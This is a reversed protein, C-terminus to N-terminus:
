FYVEEFIIHAERLRVYDMKLRANAIHINQRAANLPEGVAGAVYIKSVKKVEGGVKFAYDGILLYMDIESRMEETEDPHVKQTVIQKKVEISMQVEKGGKALAIFDELRSLESIEHVEAM